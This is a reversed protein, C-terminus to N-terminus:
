HCLKQIIEYANNYNDIQKCTEETDYKNGIDNKIIEDVKLCSPHMPKIDCDDGIITPVCSTGVVILLTAILNKLRRRLRIM